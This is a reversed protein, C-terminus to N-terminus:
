SFHIARPRHHASHHCIPSTLRSIPDEDHPPRRARRRPHRQYSWPFRQQRQWEHSSVKSHQTLNRSVTSLQTISAPDPPTPRGKYVQRGLPAATPVYPPLSRCPLGPKGLGCADLVKMDRSSERSLWSQGGFRGRRWAQAYEKLMIM